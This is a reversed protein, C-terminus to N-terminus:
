WLEATAINYLQQLALADVRFGQDFQQSDFIDLVSLIDSVKDRRHFYQPIPLLLRYTATM